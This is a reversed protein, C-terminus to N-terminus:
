KLCEQIAAEMNTYAEDGKVYQGGPHIYQIIGKRDILFSVSTFEATPVPDLWWKRLTKWKWDIAIPFTYGLSAVLAQVRELRLASRSKHHYLGVVILGQDQYRSKWTELADSSASCFPCGPGTWWRVLIVKGRLASWELPESQIWNAVKWAPAQTGILHSYVQSQAKLDTGWLIFTAWIALFAWKKM